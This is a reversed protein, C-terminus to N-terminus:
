RRLAGVARDNVRVEVGALNALAALMSDSDRDPVEDLDLWRLAPLADLRALGEAGEPGHLVLHRLRPLRALADVEEPRPVGRIAVQELGQWREIGLLSRGRPLNQVALARLPLDAPLPELGDELAPDRISLSRLGAGRLTRLDARMMYLGLEEVTTRALPSLDRVFQCGSLQLVRLTRSAALPSLDRLLENQILDLRRLNPAGAVPGLALFDGYCAVSTLRTLYKLCRARHGGRVELRRDGFDVQALVVRAYDEPDDSRRWARLLEDIVVSEDVSVFQSIKDRAGEGGVMAATRVVRAAQAESLGEPGPLLDLVFAGARALLEADDLTAPPILRAAARQVLERIEDTDVVDAQELCAAAVLHLRDRVREDRHAEANGQLLEHLLKDRERPRAHAVAMVVVDHWHDLHAHDVLHNLDGSDVIEKAALYDRFTRHVFQVEDPYPERLLGTRELTRQLVQAPDSDHARLGRMAHALRRTVEDRPLLLEHNKVLSYAFRQLLVIQEEKSLPPGQDVRIGRQEDWGVLLLDLAADYLSKRDRPLHMNRDQYLACLLGCLLPSGALRRLEHRTSLLEALGRECEDIWRSLEPDLRHEHRAARHWSALFDRIGSASLPQLDFAAFGADALWDAGVAFPRTTVV